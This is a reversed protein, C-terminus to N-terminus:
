EPNNKFYKNIVAELNEIKIPKSIIDNCGISILQKQEELFGFATQAIIIIDKNFERIQKTAELGNLKPMKIDMLVLDFNNTKVAEVAEIGNDVVTIKGFLQKSIISLHLSNVEDDEAILVRLKKNEGIYKFNQPVSNVNDIEVIKQPFAVYFVSGKDVESEVWIRGNLMEVYSKVIALGLGSGEFARKDEIDAQEFRNFIAEQRNEPIGIGSDLCSFVLDNEILKFGVKIFGKETYKIANKILNSLISSLKIKDSNIIFNSYPIENRIEIELGKANAEPMFSSVLNDLHKIVNVKEESVSFEGSEIKSIEIIDNVTKLLRNSSRQIINLFKKQNPADLNPQQLLETFGLIGNMPTRIEHSMNSLFASKLRDSEEAKMKAKVLEEKERRQELFRRMGDLLLTTQNIDAQTYQISKNAVSIIAVIKGNSFTPISLYNNIKVHGEPIGKKNVIPSSYDDIVCAERNRIVDGWIGSEAIIFNMDYNAVTCQKMASDSWKHIRVESEDDNVFGLFGIKSQTLEIAKNLVFDYIEDETSSTMQGMEVLASLRSENLRIKQESIKTETVDNFFVAFKGKEPSYAYVHFYKKLAKNFEIFEEPIGSSVVRGYAEIWSQEIDPMIQKITKELVKEKKIGVVKEWAPNVELFRYDVPKGEHDFIMEHLAFANMMTSILGKYRQENKQALKKSARLENESQRQETIDYGISIVLNESVKFNAWRTLLKKGDKTLALWERFKNDPQSTVTKIVKQYTKDDPYFLRLSDDVANLEEKKWGFTKECQKNWLICKGKDDFADIMIPANEFITRFRSESLKLLNEREKKETIDQMTGYLRVIKNEKKETLGITRVWLHKGQKNIFPIEIDYPKGLELARQVLRQLKGRVNAPYYKIGDIGSPSDADIPLGYIRKTEATYYSTMTEVDLEWGGIKAIRGTENLLQENRIQEQQLEKRKTIDHYNALFGNIEKDNLLNVLTIQIWKYTGDKCLYRLETTLTEEPKTALGKLMKKANDLDDPHVLSWTSHGVLDEVNWGFHKKINSSKYRNIGDMDIIAIVDGINSVMKRQISENKALRISYENKETVDTHTGVIRIAKGNDNFVAEARSLVDIWNGDKHKMKFEMEFRDRKKNILDQQMKWSKEADEPKTLKEWISFDNPLENEEYGLMKKWGPSYYIENTLLNWDFIGDQSATM